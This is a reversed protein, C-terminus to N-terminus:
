QQTGGRTSTVCSNKFTEETCSWLHIGVLKRRGLQNCSQSPRLHPTANATILMLHKSPRREPFAERQPRQQQQPVRRLLPCSEARRVLLSHRVGSHCRHSVPERNGPDTFDWGVRWRPEQGARHGRVDWHTWVDRRLCESPGCAPSIGGVGESMLQPHHQEDQRQKYFVSVECLPLSSAQQLSDFALLSFSCLVPASFCIHMYRKVIRLGTAEWLRFMHSGM